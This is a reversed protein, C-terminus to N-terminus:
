ITRSARASNGYDSLRDIAAIVEADIVTPQRYKEGGHVVRHGIIDIEQIGEIVQTEGSWLWNLLDQIDSTRNEKTRKSQASRDDETKAKLLTKGDSKWDIKGTWIPVAPELPIEGTLQYLSSKFSSSGANLVLINM